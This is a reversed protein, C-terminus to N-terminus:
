LIGADVNPLLTLLDDEELVDGVRENSQLNRGERELRVTYSLPRGSADEVAMNLDGLLERVVEAVTADTDLDSVKFRQQQSVDQVEVALPKEQSNM